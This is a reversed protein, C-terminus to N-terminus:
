CSRMSRLRPRTPAGTTASRCVPGGLPRSTAATTGPPCLQVLKLNLASAYFLDDMTGEGFGVLCAADGLAAQFEPSGHRAIVADLSPPLLEKAISMENLPNDVIIILAM